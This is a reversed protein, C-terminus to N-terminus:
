RPRKRRRRQPRKREPNPQEAGMLKPCLFKVPVGHSTLATRFHWWDTDTANLVEPSHVSGRAVAVFKRDSRDFGALDPDDPFEEYEDPLGERPTLHVRECHDPNAQHDWVWKLFFDGLGPQGSLSLNGMYEELIVMEDDLVVLRRERCDELAELCNKVCDLDAQEARGNATLPVNTDVVVAKM